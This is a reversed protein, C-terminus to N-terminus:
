EKIREMRKSSIGKVESIRDHDRKLVDLTAVGFEQFIKEATARGIGNILGSSLYAIVGEKTKPVIEQCSAAECNWGWKPDKQFSGTITFERGNQSPETPLIMGKVSVSSGRSLGVGPLDTRAEFRCIQFSGYTTQQKPFIRKLLKGTFKVNKTDLESM